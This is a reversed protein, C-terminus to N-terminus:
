SNTPFLEQSIKFAEDEKELKRFLYSEFDSYSRAYWHARIEFSRELHILQNIPIQNGIRTESGHIWRSIAQKTIGLSRALDANSQISPNIRLKYLLELKKKLDPHKPTM